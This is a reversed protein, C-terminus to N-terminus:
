RASRQVPTTSSTLAAASPVGPFSLEYMADIESSPENTANSLSAVFRTGPSVFPMPSTNTLFM